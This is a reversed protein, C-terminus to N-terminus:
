GAVAQRLEQRAQALQAIFQQRQDDTAAGGWQFKGIPYQLDM